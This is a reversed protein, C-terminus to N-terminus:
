ASNFIRIRESKKGKIKTEGGSQESLLEKRASKRDCRFHPEKNGVCM